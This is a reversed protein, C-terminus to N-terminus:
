ACSYCGGAVTTGGFEGYGFVQLGLQYLTGIAYQQTTQVDYVDIDNWNSKLDDNVAHPPVYIEGGNSLQFKGYRRKVM